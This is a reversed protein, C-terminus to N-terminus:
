KLSFILPLIQRKLWCIVFRMKMISPKKSLLVFFVIKIHNKGYWTPKKYQKKLRFISNKDQKLLEMSKQFTFPLYQIDEDTLNRIKLDFSSYNKSIDEIKINFINENEVIFVFPQRLNLVEEFNDKSSLNLDYVELDNSTKLQFLIHIYFFLVIFFIFLTFLIKM